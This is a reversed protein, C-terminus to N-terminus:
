GLICIISRIPSSGFSWRTLSERAVLFIAMLTLILAWGMFAKPVIGHVFHQTLNSPRGERSAYFTRTKRSLKMLGGEGKIIASRIWHFVDTMKTLFHDDM